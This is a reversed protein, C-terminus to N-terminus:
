DKNNQTLEDLVGLEELDELYSQIDEDTLDKLDRHQTTYMAAYQPQYAVVLSFLELRGEPTEPIKTYSRQQIRQLDAQYRSRVARLLKQRFTKVAALMVSKLQEAEAEPDVGVMKAGMLTESDSEEIISQSLADALADMQERYTWKNSM